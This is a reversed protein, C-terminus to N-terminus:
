WSLFAHMVKPTLSKNKMLKELLKDCINNSLNGLSAIPQLRPHGSLRLAVDEVCIDELRRVERHLQPTDTQSEDTELIFIM